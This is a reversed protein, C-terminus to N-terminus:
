GLTTTDPDDYAPPKSVGWRERLHSHLEKQTFEFGHEKGMQVLSAQHDKLKKQLDSDSDVKDLFKAAEDAAM